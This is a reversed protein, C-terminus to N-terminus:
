VVRTFMDVPTVTGTVTVSDVDLVGMTNYKCSLRCTLLSGAAAEKCRILQDHGGGPVRFNELFVEHQAQVHVIHQAPNKDFIPTVIKV